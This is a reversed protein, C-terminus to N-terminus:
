RPNTASCAVHLTSRWFGSGRTTELICRPPNAGSHLLTRRLLPLARPDPHQCRLQPWGGAPSLVEPRVPMVHLAAEPSEDVLGEYLGINKRQDLDPNVSVCAWRSTARARVSGHVGAFRPACAQARAPTLSSQLPVRPLLSFADAGSLLVFLACLALAGRSPPM